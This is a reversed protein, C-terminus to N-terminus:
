TKDFKLYSMPNIYNSTTLKDTTYASPKKPIGDPTKM